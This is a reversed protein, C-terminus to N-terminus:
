KLVWRSLEIVSLYPNMIRFPYIAKVEVKKITTCYNFGTLFPRPSSQYNRASKGQLKHRIAHIKVATPIVYIRQVNKRLKKALEDSIRVFQRSITLLPLTCNM